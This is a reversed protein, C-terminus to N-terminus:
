RQASSARVPRGTSPNPILPATSASLPMRRLTGRPSYWSIDAGRTTPSTTTTPGTILSPGRYLEGRRAVDAAVVHV